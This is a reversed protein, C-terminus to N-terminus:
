TMLYDFERDAYKKLYEICQYPKKGVNIEWIEYVDEHLLQCWEYDYHDYKM